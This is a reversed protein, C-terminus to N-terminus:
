GSDEDGRALEKLDERFRSDSELPKKIPRLKYGKHDDIHWYLKGDIYLDETWIGNVDCLYDV